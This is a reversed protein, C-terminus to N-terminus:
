GPMTSAGFPQQGMRSHLLPPSRKPLTRFQTSISTSVRFGGMLRDVFKPITLPYSLRLAWRRCCMSSDYDGEDRRAGLGNVRVRGGHGGGRLLLVCELCRTRDCIAGATDSGRSVRFTKWRDTDLEGRGRFGAHGPRDDAYLAQLGPRRPM